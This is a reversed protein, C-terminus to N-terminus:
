NNSQIAMIQVSTNVNLHRGDNKSALSQVPCMMRSGVSGKRRATVLGHFYHIVLPIKGIGSGCLRWLDCEIM